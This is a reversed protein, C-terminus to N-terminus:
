RLLQVAFAIVGAVTSFDVYVQGQDPGTPRAFFEPLFPGIHGFQNAPLVLTRDPLDLGSPLTVLGSPTIATVTVGGGGARVVVISNWPVIGGLADPAAGVGVITGVDSASALPLATRAM